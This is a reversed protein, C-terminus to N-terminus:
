AGFGSWAGWGCGGAAGAFRGLYGRALQVGALYLEGAVGPPVLGLRDDLVFVRSNMMPRGIPAVANPSLPDSITVCVTAETPGYENFMRRGASWREMVDPPCVEGGTVLTRLHPLPDDVPLTGLLALPILAHTVAHRNLLRALDQGTYPGATPLILTAGALLALCIESIAVDFGCSALQTVRSGPSVHLKAAHASTFNSLGAHTVTVGKPTGTSGSTYIVYAPHQPLLPGTREADILDGDPLVALAAVSQPADLVLVGVGAAAAAATGVLGAVAGGDAVAGTTLLLAPGADRLLYGVREAPYEPDVPLHVGGAKAIALLVVVLDTSRPMVM